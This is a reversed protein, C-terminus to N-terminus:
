RSESIIECQWATWYHEYGNYLVRVQTNEPTALVYGIKIAKGYEGTDKDFVTYDVWRILDGVKM